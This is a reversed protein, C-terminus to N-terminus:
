KAVRKLMSRITDDHPALQAATELERRANLAMGAALYVNALTVRFPASEAELACARQALRSAERLDGGAKVIAEAARVHASADAPRVKTVRSWSRAAEPWQGNREEYTGQREYTEALIGDARTQVEAARRSLDTDDPTLTLAVRFNNAATVVDGAASATDALAVYKKAQAAQAQSKREEYRRRLAEMADATTPPAPPAPTIPRAAPTTGSSPSRGGLLKRALAERRIAPDIPRSGSVSGSGSVAPGDPPASSIAGPAVSTAPAVSAVSAAPAGSMAPAPSSTGTPAVGPSGAPATGRSAEREVTERAREVESLADAMLDEISRSRRQEDLYVDYEERKEPSTLTDHALTIRGFIAEMRPKYSGLKKRFYKDPHYRAALDFYARKVAKRDVGHDVGLLAYHDLVDLKRTLTLVSVRMEEDLDVEEALAAEDEPTRLLADAL